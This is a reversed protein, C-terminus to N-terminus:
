NSYLQHYEPRNIPSNLTDSWVLAMIRNLKVAREFMKPVAKAFIRISWAYADQELTLSNSQINASHQLHHRLEHLTTVISTNSVINGTVDSDYNAVAWDELLITVGPKQVGYINCIDAVMQKLRAVKGDDDERYYGDKVMAKIVRVIEPKVKVSEHVPNQM